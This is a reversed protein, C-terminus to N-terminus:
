RRRNSEYARLVVRFAYDREGYISQEGIVEARIYINPHPLLSLFDYAM